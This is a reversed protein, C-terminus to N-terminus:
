HIGISQYQICYRLWVLLTSASIVVNETFWQSTEESFHPCHYEKRNTKKQPKLGPQERVGPSLSDEQMLRGQSSLSLGWM